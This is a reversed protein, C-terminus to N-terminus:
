NIDDNEISFNNKYHPTNSSLKTLLNKESSSYLLKKKRKSGKQTLSKNGFSNDRFNITNYGVLIDNSNSKNNKNLNNIYSIYMAKKEKNDVNIQRENNRFINPFNNTDINNINEQNTLNINQNLGISKLKDKKLSSNSISDKLNKKSNNCSNFSNLNRSNYLISSPFCHYFKSDSKGIQTKKLKKIEEDKKILIYEQSLNYSPGNIKLVNNGKFDAGLILENIKINESLPIFSNKNLEKNENISSKEYKLRNNINKIGNNNINRILNNFHNNKNYNIINSTNNDNYNINNYTNNFNQNNKKNKINIMKRGEKKDIKSDNGNNNM